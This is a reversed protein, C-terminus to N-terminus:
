AKGSSHWEGEWMRTGTKLFKRLHRAPVAKLYQEGTISSMTFRVYDYAECEKMMAQVMEESSDSKDGPTTIVLVSRAGAPLTATPSTPLTGTPSVPVTGAISHRKGAENSQQRNFSLKRALSTISGRKSGTWYFYCCVSLTRLDSFAVPLIFPDSPFMTLTYLSLSVFYVHTPQFTQWQLSSNPTPLNIPDSFHVTHLPLQLLWLKSLSKVHNQALLLITTYTLMLYPSWLGDGHCFLLACPNVFGFLEVIGAGKEAEAGSVSGSMSGRKSGGGKEAGNNSITARKESIATGNVVQKDSTISAGGISGRKKDAAAATSESMISFTWVFCCHGDDMPTQLKHKTYHCRAETLVNPMM